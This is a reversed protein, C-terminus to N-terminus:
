GPGLSALCSQAAERLERLEGLECSLQTWRWGWDRTVGFNAVCGIGGMLQRMQSFLPM